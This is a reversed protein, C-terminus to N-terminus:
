VNKKNKKLNKGKFTIFDVKYLMKYHNYIGM